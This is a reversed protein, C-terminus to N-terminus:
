SIGASVLQSKRSIETLLKLQKAGRFTYVIRGKEPEPKVSVEDGIKVGVSQAFDAPIVVAKSNGTRIVKRVSGSKENSFDTAVDSGRM